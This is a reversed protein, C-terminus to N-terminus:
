FGKFPPGSITSLPPAPPDSLRQESIGVVVTPMVGEATVHQGGSDVKERNETQVNQRITTQISKAIVSRKTRM